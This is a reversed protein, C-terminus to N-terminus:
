ALCRADFDLAGPTPRLPGLKARVPGWSRRGDPPYRCATVALRTQEESSVQPVVVGQAGADLALGIQQHSNATVRVIGPCGAARLAQMAPILTDRSHLGHQMDICCWDFGASGMIEVAYGSAIHFWGGLSTTEPALLEAHTRRTSDTTM